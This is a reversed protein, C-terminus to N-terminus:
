GTRATAALVLDGLVARAPEPVGALAAGATASLTAIMREVEALAGSSVM